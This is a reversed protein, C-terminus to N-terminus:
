VFILLHKIFPFLNIADSKEVAARQALLCGLLMTLIRLFLFLFGLIKYVALSVKLYSFWMDVTTFM